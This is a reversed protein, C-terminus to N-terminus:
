PAPPEPDDDEWSVDAPRGSPELRRQTLNEGGEIEEDLREPDQEDIREDM